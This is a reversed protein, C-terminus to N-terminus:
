EAGMAVMAALKLVRRAIWKPLKIVTNNVIVRSADSNIFIKM